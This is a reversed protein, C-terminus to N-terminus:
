HDDRDGLDRVQLPSIACNTTLALRKSGYLDNMNRTFHSLWYTAPKDFILASLREVSGTTWRSPASGDCSCLLGPLDFYSATVSSRPIVWSVAKSAHALLTWESSLGIDSLLKRLSMTTSM